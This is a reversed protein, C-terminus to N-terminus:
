ASSVALSHPQRPACAELVFMDAELTDELFYDISPDSVLVCGDGGFYIM